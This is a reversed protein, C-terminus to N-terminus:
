WSRCGRPTQLLLSDNGRPVQARIQSQLADLLSGGSLPVPRADAARMRQAQMHKASAEFTVYLVGRAREAAFSTLAAYADPCIMAAARLPSRCWRRRRGHVILVPQEAHATLVHSLYFAYESFAKRGRSAQLVRWAWGLQSRCLLAAAAPVRDCSTPTLRQLLEGVWPTRFLAQHVVLSSGDPASRLSTNLLDLHMAGYQPMFHGGSLVVLRRSSDVPAYPALLV